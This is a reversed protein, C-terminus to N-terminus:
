QPGQDLLRIIDEGSITEKELLLGAVEHLTSINETLISKAANFSERIIIKIEAQALEEVKSIAMPGLSESMGYECVMATALDTAKRIDDKAGATETNCAVKEAARGGFLMVMQDSLYDKSVNHRDKEPLLMTVGLTGSDRPIITVKDPLDCNQLFIALLAHGAEHYAIVKKEESDIVMFRKERGLLHKERAVRIDNEEIEKKGMKGAAIAAENLIKALDAGTLGPTLKAIVGLNVNEALVKNKAHVKLIAERGAVDPRNFHIMRDFRGSRLLAEDIKDPRNTAAIVVINENTSFGDMEVLLQNITQNYEHDGGSSEEIRKGLSDFEDIFIICPAGKRARVFLQRINDAGVGVYRNVFSSGAMEIFNVGAEGAIAKASLTKGVGPPGIMMAGRPIKAGLAVFAAKNRLFEVIEGLEDRAEDIGAVDAFTIKSKSETINIRNQSGLHALLTNWPWKQKILFYFYSGLFLSLALTFSTTGWVALVYAFFLFIFFHKVWKHM